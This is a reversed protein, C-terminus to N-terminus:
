GKATLHQDRLEKIREKLKEDSWDNPDSSNDDIKWDTKAVPGLDNFQYGPLDESLDGVNTPLVPKDISISSSPSNGTTQSIWYGYDPDTPVFWRQCTTCIGRLTKDPFFHWIISTFSGAKESLVNSGQLHKCADQEDAINKKIRAQMERMAARQKEENEKVKPDVYPKRLEVLADKIADALLQKIEAKVAASLQSKKRVIKKKM